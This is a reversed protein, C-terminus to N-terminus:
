SCDLDYRLVGNALVEINPSLSRGDSRRWMVTPSPIGSTVRCQLLAGGGVVVTQHQNPYIEIAPPERAPNWLFILYISLDLDQSLAIPLDVTKVSVSWKLLPLHKHFVLKM